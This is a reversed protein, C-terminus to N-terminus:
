GQVKRIRWIDPESRPFYGVGGFTDTVKFRARRVYYTYDGVVPSITSTSYTEGVAPLLDSADPTYTLEGNAADTWAVDGTTDVPVGNRDVLVLTPTLGTGNFPKGDEKLVFKRPATEGEVWDVVM